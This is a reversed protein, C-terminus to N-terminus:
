YHCGNEYYKSETLVLFYIEVQSYGANRINSDIIAAAQDQIVQGRDFWNVQVLPYCKAGEGEGISVTPILEITFYERPCGICETLETVLQNSILRIDNEAMGRIIIQPM